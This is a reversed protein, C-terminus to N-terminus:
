LFPEIAVLVPWEQLPDQNLDWSTPEYTVELKLELPDSSRKQSGHPGTVCMNFM